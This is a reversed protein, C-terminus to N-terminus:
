WKSEVKSQNYLNGLSKVLKNIMQNIEDMKQKM